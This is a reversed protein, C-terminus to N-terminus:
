FTGQKPEKSIDGKKTSAIIGLAAAEQEEVRRWFQKGAAAGWNRWPSTAGHLYEKKEKFAEERQGKKPAKPTAPRQKKLPRETLERFSLKRDRYLLQLQGDLTQRVTIKRGALQLAAESRAIQLWRNQWQVTWDQHVHRQEEWSLAEHLTRTPIKRHLDLAQASTVMFRRNFPPLFKEELFQNAAELTNIKALRMEKILRDQLTGHTREVRGKAQPSYAFVLKVDLGHMARAFQTQPSAGRMQERLDPERQVQYISDRDVYLALVLGYLHTYHEFTEFAAATTEQEFFRAYTRNTADDVMVMLVARERRGEFWDHHSGDMQVLEGAQEKRERWQRHARRKRRRQWTGDKLLWRRLTESNIVKGERALHEAALTPGFDGYAEKYRAIVEERFAAPRARGSVGRRLGHVLGADGRERYRRWIRKAQRYSVSMGEAAKRLRVQRSSVRSM